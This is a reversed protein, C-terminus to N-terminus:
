QFIPVIIKQKIRLVSKEKINNIECLDAVTLGYKRSIGWLTDGEKVTYILADAATGANKLKEGVDTATGKPLRLSYSQRAPTCKRLLAPNLLEIVSQEIGGTEAIQKLSFMGATTIYDFEEVEAGDILADAEAIDPVNYYAANEIIDAIALLKPVYQASQTKLQGNEAMYWFDKGENKKVAKGMAGAGCNYAAIAIEWDGFQKYNWELKALAADTSKWPDRRDDYWTDKTLYPAMSNEMFQWIGTAKTSSVANVNYYSEVIPLYQLIMPLQKAELQQRIYPRYPVSRKLAQIIWKRDRETLYRERYKETLPHDAGELELPKREPRPSEGDAAIETSSDTTSVADTANPAPSDGAEAAHEALGSGDLPASEAAASEPATAPSDPAQEPSVAEAAAGAPSLAADQLSNQEAQALEGAEQEKKRNKKKVPYAEAAQVVQPEYLVAPAAPAQAPVAEAGALAAMSCTLCLLIHRRITQVTMM